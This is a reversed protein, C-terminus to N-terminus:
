TNISVMENYLSTYSSSIRALKTNTDAIAAMQSKNESRMEDNLQLFHHSLDKRTIIIEKNIVDTKTTPTSSKPDAIIPTQTVTAQSTAPTTDGVSAIALPSAPRIPLPEQVPHSLKPIKFPREDHLPTSVSSIQSLPPSPTKLLETPVPRVSYWEEENLALHNPNRLPRTEDM